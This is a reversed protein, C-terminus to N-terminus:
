QRGLSRRHHPLSTLRVAKLAYLSACGRTPPFGANKLYRLPMEACTWDDDWWAASYPETSSILVIMGVICHAVCRGYEVGVVSKLMLKTTERDRKSKGGSNTTANAKALRSEDAWNLTTLDDSLWLVRGKAGGIGRNYKVVSIGPYCAMLM